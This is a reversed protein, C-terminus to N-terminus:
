NSIGLAIDIKALTKHTEDAWADTFGYDSIDRRVEGLAARLREIEARLEINEKSREDAIALARRKAAQLREIEDVLGMVLDATPGVDARGAYRNAREVINTM